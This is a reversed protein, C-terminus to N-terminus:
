PMRHTKPARYESLEVDVWVYIPLRVHVCMRPHIQLLYPLIDPRTYECVHVCMNRCVYTYVCTAVCMRTCVHQSVCVHVCMNRCVYTYVCRRIYGYFLKLDGCFLRIQCMHFKLFATTVSPTFAM